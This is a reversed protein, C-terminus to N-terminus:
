QVSTAVDLFHVLFSFLITERQEGVRSIGGGAGNSLQLRANGGSSPQIIEAIGQQVVSLGIEVAVPFSQIGKFGETEFHINASGQGPTKVFDPCEDLFPFGLAFTQGIFNVADDYLDIARAQLSLQTVCSLRRAPRNGVLIGRSRADSTDFVDNHLDAAGALQCRNRHQFRHRDAAGRDAPSSQMVHVFDLTQAYLDAVPYLDLATSIHNGFNRTDDLVFRMWTPMFRKVHRLFTRDAAGLHYTRLSFDVM